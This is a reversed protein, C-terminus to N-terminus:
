LLGDAPNNYHHHRAGGVKDDTADSMPQYGFYESVREPEDHFHRARGKLAFIRTRPLREM